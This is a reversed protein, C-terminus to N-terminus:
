LHIFKHQRDSYVPVPVEGTSRAEGGLESGSELKRPICAWPSLELFETGAAWMPCRLQSSPEWTRSRCNDLSHVTFYSSAVTHLRERERGAEVM